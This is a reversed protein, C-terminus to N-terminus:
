AKKEDKFCDKRGDGSKFYCKSSSMTRDKYWFHFGAFGGIALMIAIILYMMM